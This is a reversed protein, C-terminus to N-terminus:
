ASLLLIWSPVAVVCVAPVVGVDLVPVEAGLPPATSLVVGASNTSVV